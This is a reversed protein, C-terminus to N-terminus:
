RPLATSRVTFRRSWVGPGSLCPPRGSCPAWLRPACPRLDCRKIRVSLVPPPYLNRSDRMGLTCVSFIEVRGLNLTLIFREHLFPSFWHFNRQRLTAPSRPPQRPRGRDSRRPCRRAPGPTPRRCSPAASPASPALARAPAPVAPCGRSRGGGTRAHVGRAGPPRPSSPLRGPSVLGAPGAPPLGPHSAPQSAPLLARSGAAGRAKAGRGAEGPAGAGAQRVGGAGGGQRARGRRGSVGGARGGVGEQRGGGGSAQRRGAHAGGAPPAARPQPPRLPARSSLAEPGLGSFGGAGERARHTHARAAQTRESLARGARKGAKGM